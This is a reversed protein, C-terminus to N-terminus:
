LTSPYPFGLYRDHHSHLDKIKWIMKLIMLTLKRLLMRRNKSIYDISFLLGAIVMLISCFIIIFLFGDYAYGASAFCKESILLFGSLVIIVAKM